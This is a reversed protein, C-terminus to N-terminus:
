VAEFVDEVAGWYPWEDQTSVLGNRVANTVTFMCVQKLSAPDPEVPVYFNDHWISEFQGVEFQLSATRIRFESVIRGISGSVVTPEIVFHLHDPMVCYAYLCFQQANAFDLLSSVLKESLVHNDFPRTGSKAWFTLFYRQEAENANTELLAPLNRNDSQEM